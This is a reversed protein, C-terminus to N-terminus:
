KKGPPNEGTQMGVSAQLAVALAADGSVLSAWSMEYGKRKGKPVLKFGDPTITLIYLEDGITLQRKLPRKLETAM